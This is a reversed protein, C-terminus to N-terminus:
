FIFGNLIVGKNINKIIAYYKKRTLVFNEKNPFLTYINMATFSGSTGINMPCVKACYNCTTCPIM